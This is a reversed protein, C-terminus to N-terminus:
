ASFHPNKSPHHVSPLTDIRQLDSFTCLMDLVLISLMPNALHFLEVPISTSRATWFTLGKGKADLLISCCYM